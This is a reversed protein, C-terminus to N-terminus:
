LWTGVAHKTVLAPFGPATLAAGHPGQSIQLLRMIVTRHDSEVVFAKTMAAMATDNAHVAKDYERIFEIVVKWVGARSRNFQKLDFFEITKQGMPSNGQPAFAGNSPEYELHHAPDDNVPHILLPAGSPDRPFDSGKLFTNCRHCSLFHNNWDFAREPAEARPEWHEIIARWKNDKLATATDHECYMCTQLNNNMTRLVTLAGKVAKTDRAQTWLRDAELKKTHPKRKRKIQTTWKKFYLTTHLPLPQRTFRRM